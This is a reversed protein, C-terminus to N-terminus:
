KARTWNRRNKKMQFVEEIGKGTKNQLLMLHSVMKCTLEDLREKQLPQFKLHHITQSSGLM